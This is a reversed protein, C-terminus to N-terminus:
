MVTIKRGAVNVTAESMFCGCGILIRVQKSAIRRLHSTNSSRLTVVMVEAEYKHLLSASSLAKETPQENTFVILIAPIHLRFVFSYKLLIRWKM